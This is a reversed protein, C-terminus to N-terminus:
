IKLCSCGVLVLASIQACRSLYRWLRLHSLAFSSEGMKRVAPNARIETYTWEKLCRFSVRRHLSDLLRLRGAEGQNM